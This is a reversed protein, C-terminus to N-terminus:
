KVLGVAVEFIREAEEADFKTTHFLNEEDQNVHEYLSVKYSSTAPKHWLEVRGQRKVLRFDWDDTEGINYKSM